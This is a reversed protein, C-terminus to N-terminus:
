RFSNAYILGALGVTTALGYWGFHVAVGAGIACLIAIWFRVDADDMAGGLALLENALQRM